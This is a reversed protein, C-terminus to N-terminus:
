CCTEQLCVGIILWAIGYTVMLFYLKFM